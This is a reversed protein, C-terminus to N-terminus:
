RVLDNRCVFSTIELDCNRRLDHLTVKRRRKWRRYRDCFATYRLGAPHQELYVLHSLELTIGVRRLKAEMWGPDPEPRIAGPAVARGYMLQELEGLEAHAYRTITAVPIAGDHDGLDRMTIVQIAM